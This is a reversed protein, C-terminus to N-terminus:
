ESSGGMGFLQLLFLFINIFNLYLMLAGFIGLKAALDPNAQTEPHAAMRKIEQTNYATLGLFLLIGIVSIIFTLAGGIFMNVVTAIILGILGIMLYGGFRSLDVKTTYAVLTMAGFMGATTVFAAAITGLSFVLFIVSLTFGTLASYAMFMAAAVTPSLRNLMAGLAIVLGLQAVLTVILLVPNTALSVLAANTSVTFAVLATILLGFAMWIYVYKLIPRAEEYTAAQEVFQPHNHQRSSLVEALAM